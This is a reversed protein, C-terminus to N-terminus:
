SPSAGAAEPFSLGTGAGRRGAGAATSSRIRAARTAPQELGPLAAAGAGVEVVLGGSVVVVVAGGVVVVV